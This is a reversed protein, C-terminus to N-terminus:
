LATKVLKYSGFPSADGAHGSERVDEMRFRDRLTTTSLLARVARGVIISYLRQPRISTGADCTLLRVIM